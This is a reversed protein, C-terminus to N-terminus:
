LASLTPEFARNFFKNKLRNGYREKQRRRDNECVVEMYRVADYCHRDTGQEWLIYDKNVYSKWIKHNLNLIFYDRYPTLRLMTMFYLLFLPYTKDCIGFIM